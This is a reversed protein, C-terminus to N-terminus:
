TVVLGTGNISVTAGNLSLVATGNTITVGSANMTILGGQGNNIIIGTENVSITATLIKLLFGGTPGPVDSLLLGNQLPTQLVFHPVGPPALLNMKPVEALSGWFCGSWIPYDPDGQEFEVWVGTGPLPVALFGAEIGGYPVCPMAFTTPVLASVDPVIVQIRGMQLPDINNLVTGRYKGLFLQIGDDAGTAEDDEM